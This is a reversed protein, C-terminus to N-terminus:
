QKAGAAPRATGWSHDEEPHAELFGQLDKDLTSWSIRSSIAAYIRQVIPNRHKCYNMLPVLENGIEIKARYGTQGSQFEVAGRSIVWKLAEEWLRFYLFWEGAVSYDLGIFKNVMRKGLDFCLMFAVLKGTENHRLLVFWSSPKDSILDFFKPTLREFKTEGKEYTQWFLQFIEERLKQDPRQCVSVDLAVREQSKKLKKKLKYRRSHKLGAFYEGINKVPLRLTTGPYSVMKFLGRSECLGDLAAWNAEPFDKWAIMQARLQRAREQLADQITLALDSLLIGPLLGVTGEDSCPSGLFLTRQYRLGPIIIGVFQFLKAVIPPAVLDIPVDMLFSPAIGVPEGDVCILAYSYKFQADLGSNEMVEYWWHGEVPQGYCREWLDAPIDKESAVWEVTVSQTKSRELLGVPPM